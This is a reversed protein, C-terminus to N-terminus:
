TLFFIMFSFLLFLVHVSLNNSFLKFSFIIFTLQMSFMHVLSLVVSPQSFSVQNERYYMKLRNMDYLLLCSKKSRDGICFYIYLLLTYLIFTSLLTQYSIAVHSGNVSQILM